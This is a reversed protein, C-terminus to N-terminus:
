ECVSRPISVRQNKKEINIMFHELTSRTCEPGGCVQVKRGNGPCQFNVCVGSECQVGGECPIGAEKRMPQECSKVPVCVHESSDFLPACNFGNPCGAGDNCTQGSCMYQGLNNPCANELCLGSECDLDSICAEGAEKIKQSLQGDVNPTCAVMAATLLGLLLMKYNALAM